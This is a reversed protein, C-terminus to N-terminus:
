VDHSRGFRFDFDLGGEVLNTIAETIKEKLEEAREADLRGNEVARDLGESADAVMADILEDPDIEFEELAEPLTLGQRLSELLERPEVGFLEELSELRPRILHPGFGGRREGFQERVRDGVEAMHALLADRVVEAQEESIVGDAVVAALAEDIFGGAKRALGDHMVEDSDSADVAEEEAVEQEDAEEQATAVEPSTIVAAAAIGGAVVVLVVGTAILARRM